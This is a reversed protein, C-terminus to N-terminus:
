AMVEKYAQAILQVDAFTINHHFPLAITRAGVEDAVPCESYYPKLYNSRHLATFYPRTPVGKKAMENAFLRKDTHEPLEIVYVFHSAEDSDRVKQKRMAHFHLDLDHAVDDLKEQMEDLRSLQVRGMAALPDPMRINWGYHQDWLDPAAANGHQRLARITQALGKEKCVVIGGQCTTIQKNPYFGFTAVDTDSGVYRGSRMAGLAEISDEVVYTGFEDAINNIEQMNCPVGFISAPLIARTKTTVLNAIKHPDMNYTDREIDCFVPWAGCSLIANVTAAITYPTVIVETDPEVGVGHLAAMLASTGSNVAIVHEFGFLEKFDNEFEEVRKGTALDGTRMAQAVANIEAETINHEFFNM